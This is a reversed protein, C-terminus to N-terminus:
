FDQLAQSERAQKEATMKDIFRKSRLFLMHDIPNYSAAAFGDSRVWHTHFSELITKETWTNGQSNSELLTKIIHDSLEEGDQRRIFMAQAMDSMYIIGVEFGNKVYIFIDEETRNPEGYRAACQEPSEGLRAQAPTACLATLTLLTITSLTRKM